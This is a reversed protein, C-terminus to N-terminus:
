VNMLGNLFGSLHKEKFEQIESELAHVFLGSVPKHKFVSYLRVLELFDKPVCIHICEVPSRKSDDYVSGKDQTKRRGRSRSPKVSVVPGDDPGKRGVDSKVVANGSKHSSDPEITESLGLVSKGETPDFFPEPEEFIEDSEQKKELLTKEVM